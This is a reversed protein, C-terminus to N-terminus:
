YASKDPNDSLRTSGFCSFIFEHSCLSYIYERSWFSNIFHLSFHSYQSNIAFQSILIIVLAFCIFSVHFCFQSFIACCCSNYSFCLNNQLLSISIIVLQAFITCVFVFSPLENQFFRADGIVIVASSFLILFGIFLLAFTVSEQTRFLLRLLPSFVFYLSIM